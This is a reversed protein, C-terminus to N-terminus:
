ARVGSPSYTNSGQSFFYLKKTRYCTASPNLKFNFSDVLEDTIDSLTAEM